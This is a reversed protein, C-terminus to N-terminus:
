VKSLSFAKERVGKRTCLVEKYAYSLSVPMNDLYRSIDNFDYGYIISSPLLIKDLKIMADNYNNVFRPGNSALVYELVNSLFVRDYKKNVSKEIDMIDSDYYTIKAKKLNRKLKNYSFADTYANKKLSGYVNIVDNFNVKNNIRLYEFTSWFLYEDHSLYERISDIINEKSNFNLSEMNEIWDMRKFFDYYGYKKIMAIKLASVYKSFINVDFSDIMSGGNLIANLAHDGSSTITLINKGKLNEKPYLKMDENTWLYSPDFNGFSTFSTIKDKNSNMNLLLKEYKNIMEEGIHIFM